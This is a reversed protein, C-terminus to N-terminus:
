CVAQLGFKEVLDAVKSEDERDPQPLFASLHEGTAAWAEKGAEGGKVEVLRQLLAGITKAAGGGGVLMTDEGEQVLPFRVTRLVVGVQTCSGRQSRDRKTLRALDIPPGAPQCAPRCLPICFIHCPWCAGVRLARFLKTLPTLVIAVLRVEIEDPNADATRVHEALVKLDAGGAAVLEGLM